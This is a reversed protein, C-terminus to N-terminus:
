TTERPDHERGTVQAPPRTADQGAVAQHVTRWVIIERDDTFPLGGPNFSWTM